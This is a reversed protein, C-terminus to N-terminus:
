EEARKELRTFKIGRVYFIRKDATYQVIGFTSHGEKKTEWTASVITMDKINHLVSMVKAHTSLRDDAFLEPVRIDFFYHM